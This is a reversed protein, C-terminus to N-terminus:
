LRQADEESLWADSHKPTYRCRGQRFYKVAQIVAGPMLVSWPGSGTLGIHEKLSLRSMSFYQAASDLHWVTDIEDETYQPLPTAQSILRIGAYAYLHVVYGSCSFCGDLSCWPIVRFHRLDDQPWSSPPDWRTADLASKIKEQQEESLPFDLWFRITMSGKQLPPGMHAAQPAGYSSEVTVAIHNVWTKGRRFTVQGCISYLPIPQGNTYARIMAAGAGVATGQM